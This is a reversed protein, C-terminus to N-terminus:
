WFLGMKNKEKKSSLPSLEFHPETTYKTEVPGYVSRLDSIITSAQPDGGLNIMKWWLSFVVVIKATPEMQLAAPVLISNKRM